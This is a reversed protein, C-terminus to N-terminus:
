NEEQKCRKRHIMSRKSKEGKMLMQEEKIRGDKENKKVVILMEITKIDVVIIHLKILNFKIM